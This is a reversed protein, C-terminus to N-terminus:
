FITFFPGLAAEYQQSYVKPERYIVFQQDAERDDGLGLVLIERHPESDPYSLVNVKYRLKLGCDAAIGKVWASTPLPLILWLEGNATLHRGALRVLRDFFQGDAHKALTKGAKPSELANLYFPPNTVILDYRSDPRKGLYHEFSEAYVALRGAFPSGAFNRQATLAATDDVEVADIRAAGFRQALMLAIVGTGTGIDLITDPRGAGALAGILVGDTNIKMACGAQDVNFQKFRFM